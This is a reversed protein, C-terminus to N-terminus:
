DWPEKEKDSFASDESGSSRHRAALGKVVPAAVAIGMLLGLPAVFWVGHSIAVWCWVVCFGIGLISVAIPAGKELATQIRASPAEEGEPTKKDRLALVLQGLFILVALACFIYFGKGVGKKVMIVAGIAFGALGTLTSRVTPRKQRSQEQAKKEEPAQNRYLHVIMFIMFSIWISFFIVIVAIGPLADPAYHMLLIFLMALIALIKIFGNEKKM